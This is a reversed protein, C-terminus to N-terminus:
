TVSCAVTLPITLMKLRNESIVLIKDTAHEGHEINCSWHVLMLVLELDNYVNM